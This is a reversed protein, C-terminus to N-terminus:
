KKKELNVFPIELVYAEMRKLDTESIKGESLLIDSLKQKKEQAKEASLELESRTILGSDLIVKKFQEENIVM